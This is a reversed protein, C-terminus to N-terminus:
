ANALGCLRQIAEKLKFGSMTPWVKSKYVRLEVSLINFIRCISEPSLKIEVGRITSTIPGGLRYTVQSYFAHVLTLFISEFITVVLLWGMRGSLREFGFYQLQSFNISKEPVVKRKTFKQKYRQYEEISSFLTM